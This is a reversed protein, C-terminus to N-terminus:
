YPTFHAYQSNDDRVCIIISINYKPSTFKYYLLLMYSQEDTSLNESIQNLLCMQTPADRSRLQPHFWIRNDFHKWNKTNEFVLRHTM